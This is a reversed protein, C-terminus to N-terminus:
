PRACCRDHAGRSRRAAFHALETAPVDVSSSRRHRHRAHSPLIGLVFRVRLARIPSLVLQLVASLLGVMRCAGLWHLESWVALVGVRALIRNGAAVGVWLVSRIVLTRLSVAGLGVARVFDLDAIRRSWIGM